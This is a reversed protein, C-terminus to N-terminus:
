VNPHHTKKFHNLLRRIVYVMLLLLIVTMIGFFLANETLYFRMQDILSLSGLFYKDALEFSHITELTTNVILTDSNWGIEQEPSLLMDIGKELASPSDYQFSIVNREKNYPSHFAQILLNKEINSSEKLTKYNRFPKLRDTDFFPLHDVFRYISPFTTEFEGGSIKVQSVESLEQPTHRYSGIFIIEKDKVEDIKDTVNLRYLPYEIEKGLFFGLKLAAKLNSSSFNDMVIASNLGDPHISFPYAAYLFYRIYPMELWHPADPLEIYSTDLITTQLNELNYLECFGKKFPIMAPQIALKNKGGAILYAPFNDSKKFNFFKTISVEKSLKEDFPLQTAFKNNVLINLVSDFRVKSPYIGNLGLIIKQKDDFFFDPYMKFDIEMPSPYMYKFTTTKHGLERLTIRQGTPLYNPATYPSSPEPLTISNVQIGFSKHLTFNYSAFAYVSDLLDQSSDSTLCIIGYGPNAPNNFFLISNRQIKAQFAVAQEPSFSAKLLQMLEQRPAIVIADGDKPITSAIQVDVDRYKLKKGIVSAAIVASTVLKSDRKPPLVFTMKQRTINKSDILFRDISSLSWPLSRPLVTLEIYSKRTDIKTWLEPATEDECHDITYHQYSNITINNFPEFQDVPLPTELSTAEGRQSANIWKQIIPKNNISVILTSREPIIALSPMYHLKLNASLLVWRSAIPLNFTYQARASQLTAQNVNQAEYNLPIRLTQTGDNNSQLIIDSIAFLQSMLLFLILIFFRM